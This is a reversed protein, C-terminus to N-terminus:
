RCGLCCAGGPVGCCGSVPGAAAAVEVGAGVFTGCGAATIAFGWLMDPVTLGGKGFM